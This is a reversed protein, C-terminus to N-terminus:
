WLLLLLLLIQNNVRFGVSWLLQSTAHLAWCMRMEQHFKEGYLMQLHPQCRWGLTIPGRLLTVLLLPSRTASIVLQICYGRAVADM